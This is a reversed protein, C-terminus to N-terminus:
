EVTELAIKIGAGKFSLSMLFEHGELWTNAVTLCM